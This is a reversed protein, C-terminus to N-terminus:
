AAIEPRRHVLLSIVIPAGVLATVGNLPLTRDSGPLQALIDCVLAVSAGILVVAPLLVSHRADGMVTRAVHPVAIGLFAIPGCFVTVAGALLASTAIILLRARRVDIGLSAAYRDGLLLADLPKVLAAVGLGGLALVPVMVRLQNWTTGRFGGESWSQFHRIAELSSFHTLVSVIAAAVYGVMVGIILVTVRGPIRRAAFLVLSLVLAAGLAGAGALGLNGVRGINQLFSFGTANAGLVLVAVGLSAGATVGLISPDALPNRFLTQMELGALGLAAGATSATVTRPLRVSWVIAEWGPKRGAAGAVIRAVDLPPIAVSGIAVAAVAAVVLVGGLLLLLRARTM